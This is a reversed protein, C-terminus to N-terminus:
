LCTTFFLTGVTAIELTSLARCAAIERVAMAAHPSRDPVFSSIACVADRYKSGSRIIMKYGFRVM